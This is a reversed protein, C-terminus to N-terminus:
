EAVVGQAVAQKYLFSRLSDVFANKRKEVIIRKITENAYEMPMQRGAKVCDAVYFLLVVQDSNVTVLEHRSYSADAALLTYGHKRIESVPTWEDMFYFPSLGYKVCITEIDEMETKKMKDKLTRLENCKQPVAIVMGKFLSEGLLLANENNAYFDSIQEDSVELNLGNNLMMSQYEHVYLSHKYEDVMEEINDTNELSSVAQAYMMRDVVWDHIYKKAMLTSDEPNLDKPLVYALDSLYLSEGDVQALVGQEKVADTKSCSVLLSLLTGTILLSFFRM